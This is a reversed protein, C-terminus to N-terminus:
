QIFRLLQENLQLLQPDGKALSKSKYAFQAAQSHKNQRYKIEAMAYWYYGNKPEIRLAREMIMEAKDLNGERLYRQGEEFLTGAVGGGANYSTAPLEEPEVPQEIIVQDIAEETIPADIGESEAPGGTPAKDQTSTPLRREPPLPEYTIIACGNLMLTSLLPIIFLLRTLTM